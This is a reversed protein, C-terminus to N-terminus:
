GWDPVFTELTEPTKCKNLASQVDEPLDRLMQKRSAISAKATNDGAEDARMYDIDLAKLFEDRHERIRDTKIARAHKMDVGIKKGDDTWANRFMRPPLKVAKKSVRYSKAKFDKGSKEWRKVVDRPKVHDAIPGISVGGDQRKIILQM